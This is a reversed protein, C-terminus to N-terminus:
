KGEGGQDEAPAAPARSLHDPFRCDSCLLLDIPVEVDDPYDDEDPEEILWGAPEDDLGTEAVQHCNDCEWIVGLGDDSM